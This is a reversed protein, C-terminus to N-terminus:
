KDALLVARRYYERFGPQKRDPSKPDQPLDTVKTPDAPDTMAVIRDGQEFGPDKSEAAPTGPVVPRFSKKKPVSVLALRQPPVIGLQPYYAKEDRLPEVEMTEIQGDHRVLLTVKEGKQTSMVIPRLDK